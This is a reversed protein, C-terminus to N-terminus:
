FPLFTGRWYGAGPILTTPAQLVMILSRSFRRGDARLCLPLM